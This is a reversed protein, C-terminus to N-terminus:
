NGSWPDFGPGRCQFHLNRAVPGGLFDGSPHKSLIFHFKNLILGMLSFFHSKEKQRGNIILSYCISLLLNLVITDREKQKLM